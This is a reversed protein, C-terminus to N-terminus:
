TMMGMLRAAEDSLGTWLVVPTRGKVALIATHFRVDTWRAAVFLREAALREHKRVRGESRLVVIYWEMGSASHGLIRQLVGGPRCTQDFDVAVMIAAGNSSVAVVAREEQPFSAKAQAALEHITNM